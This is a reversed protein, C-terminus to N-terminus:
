KKEHWIQYVSNVQKAYYNYVSKGPYDHSWWYSGHDERSRSEVMIIHHRAIRRLEELTEKIKEMHSLVSVTLVVDYSGTPIKSLAKEDGEDVPVRYHLRAADVARRNIDIGQVKLGMQALQYLHRGANCGFEFVSGAGLARIYGYLWYNEPTSAMQLHYADRYNEKATLPKKTEM